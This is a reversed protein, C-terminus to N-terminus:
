STIAHLMMMTEPTLQPIRKSKKKWPVWKCAPNTAQVVLLTVACLRLFCLCRRRHSGDIAGWPPSADQAEEDMTQGKRIHVHVMLHVTIGREGSAALDHRSPPGSRFISM